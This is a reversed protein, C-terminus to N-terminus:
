RSCRWTAEMGGYGVQPLVQHAGLGAGAFLLLIAVIHAFGLRARWAAHAAWIGAILLMTVGVLYSALAVECFRYPWRTLAWALGVGLILRGWVGLASPPADAPSSPAVAPGPRPEPRATSPPVPKATEPGLQRLLRDVEGSMAEHDPNRYPDPM